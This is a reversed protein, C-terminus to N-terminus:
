NVFSVKQKSNLEVEIYKTVMKLTLDLIIAKMFLIQHSEVDAISKLKVFIKTTKLLLHRYQLM